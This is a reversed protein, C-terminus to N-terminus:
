GFISSEQILHRFAEYYFVYRWKMSIMARSSIARRRGRRTRLLWRRISSNWSGFLLNKTRLLNASNTRCNRSIWMVWTTSCTLRTSNKMTRCLCRRCKAKASQIKANRLVLHMSRTSIGRKTRLGSTMCSKRSEKSRPIPIIDPYYLVPLGEWRCTINITRSWSPSDKMRHVRWSWCCCFALQERLKWKRLHIIFHSVHLM